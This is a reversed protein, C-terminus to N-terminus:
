EQKLETLVHDVLQDRTMRRGQALAATNAPDALIASTGSRSRDHGSMAIGNADRHGIIVAALPLEHHRAAWICLLEIVPWLHVWDRADYLARVATRDTAIAAQRDPLAHVVLATSWPAMVGLHPSGITAAIEAVTAFHAMAQRKDGASSALHGAVLQGYGDLMENRLPAALDLAENLLSSGTGRQLNSHMWAAVMRAYARWFQRRAALREAATIMRQANDSAAM